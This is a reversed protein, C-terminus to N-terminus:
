KSQENQKQIILDNSEIFSITHSDSQNHNENEEDESENGQYLQYCRSGYQSQSQSHSQSNTRSHSQTYSITYYSNSQMDYLRKRKEYEVISRSDYSFEFDTDSDMMIENKFILADFALLLIINCNLGEFPAFTIKLLKSNLVALIAIILSLFDVFILIFLASQFFYKYVSIKLNKKAAVHYSETLKKIIIMSCVIDMISVVIQAIGYIPTIADSMLVDHDRKRKIPIYYRIGFEIVTMTYIFIKLKRKDKEQLLPLVKVMNIYPLVLSRISYFTENVIMINYLYTDQNILQKKTIVIECTSRVVAGTFSALTGIYIINWFYSNKGVGRVYAYLILIFQLFYAYLVHDKFSDLLSRIVFEFTCNEIEDIKSDM